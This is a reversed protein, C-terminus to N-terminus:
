RGAANCSASVVNEIINTLQGFNAVTIPPIANGPQAGTIALTNLTAQDVRNTVGVPIITPKSAATFSNIVAELQANTTGTPMDDTIVILINPQNPRDGFAATFTQDRLLQLAEILRTEGGTYQAQNLQTLIFQTNQASSFQHIPVVATSVKVLAMRTQTNTPDFRTIIASVFDRLLDWNNPTTVQDLISGSDDFLM